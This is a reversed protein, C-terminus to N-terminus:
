FLFRVGFRVTRPPQFSNPRGYSADLRNGSRRLDAEVLTGLAGRRFFNRARELSNTGALLVEYDVRANVLESLGLVNNENFANLVDLDFVVTFREGNGFRYKHRLALDTETLRATRGLDGRGHLIGAAVGALLYRTTAPTGSQATTYAGFETTHRRAFSWLKDWDLKYSGHFKFVHPRDAPLRGDNLKGGATYANFPLSFASLLNPDFRVDDAASTTAAAGAYNGHLRSFTYNAGLYYNRTFRRELRLELADYTRRAKPTPPLGLQEFLSRSAGYGPNGIIHKLSGETNYFGIAEVARDIRKHTYRGSLIYGAGLDREIGLTLESQRFAELDPDIGGAVALPAKADGGAAARFDRRCRSLGSRGPIGGSNGGFPCNGGPADGGDGLIAPLTYNTYLPLNEQLEFYDTRYFEGGFLARPLEYNLRDFFRGYFGFIKTAGDGNLDFAAGLRPAIKDTFNFTIGPARGDLAAVDEREIRAGLNLTLRTSPQWKDQAYFTHLRSAARGERAYRQLLGSGLAGPTPTLNADGALEDIPVGYFLQVVGADGYGSSVDNGIRNYGYGFKFEHRGYPRNKLYTVDADLTRRASADREVAHNSPFNQFGSACGARADGVACIFRETRPVGDSFAGEEPRVRENLFSRGARLSIISTASPTWTLNGTANDADVRGGQRALLESGALVGTAGGFDAAPTAGVQQIAPPLLGDYVIPNWTFTGSVRLSNTLTADVRSFAYHATSDARYTEAALGATRGRPDSALYNITRTHHFLQPTYSLFFWARDRVLAGSFNGTPFLAYGKDRAPHLYEAQQFLDPAPANFLRLAPRAGAQWRAPRLQFGFEGHFENTGNRTVVNVIGGTAGGYEAEFGSSKVQIEQIFQFPFNNNASLAGTRFNTVEQGDIIYTNETRSAGDIQFGGSAPEDRVSPAVRLLSTFNTGRPLMEAVQATVNTQVKNDTPDISAADSTVTVTESVGGIGVGVGTGSGVGVGNGGGVYGGSGGAGGGVRVADDEGGPVDVRRPEGDGTITADEIAVFSTFQTMLRYSLGLQTISAQLDDRMKGQQAGGMDEAMLDDIKRRAWLKSLVDHQPEDDPLTVPIERAFPRGAMRGRLILKGQAGRAYRGSLVVPKASFLDPLQKPYVDAVPLNTWDIELDTLLPDRVREHFRRAAASGDGHETVYEVEGRGHEAMKDLLFRNPSDGFGMAFVRAQPHKRVEAIIEMDDGVQGDTMFCAIRIHGQADAPSLAARIAKMMETGGDSKRSALFKKAKALNEPTAPVPQPFLIKTDGSFTILNFTDQPYLGDLALQMTEKAKDLPFGMMSGSTDLVFVLEKPMVDKAAVRDPPQLIFTFFGERGQAHTLLADEIQRGAVDYRLVFDKNPITTGTKLRVVARTADPRAVELEHTESNLGDLPVGADLAVEISIDHGARRGEALAAPTADQGIGSAGPTALPASESKIPASKTAVPADAVPADATEPVGGDDDGAEGDEQAAREAKESESAENRTASETGSAGNSPAPTYREGVKMPFSWEYTGSEYKLTEVYSIVIKIRAGPLINAVSQTFINPREQNLLSAVQGRARAETYAKRAEERRMIQGRITREGVIMTMDDVAASETLPFTYVAEIKDAFPNEFEQTVTVRTLFGTIEAKVDTHKLPCLGARRGKADIATLTGQTLEGSAGNAAQQTTASSSASTKLGAFSLTSLIAVLSLFAIRRIARRRM